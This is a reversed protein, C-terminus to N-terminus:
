GPYLMGKSSCLPKQYKMQKRNVNNSRYLTQELHVLLLPWKQLEILHDNVHGVWEVDHFPIM